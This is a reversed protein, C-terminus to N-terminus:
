SLIEVGSTGGESALRNSRREIRIWRERPRGRTTRSEGFTCYTTVGPCLSPDLTILRREYALVHDATPLFLLCLLSFPRRFDVVFATLPLTRTTGLLREMQTSRDFKNGTDLDKRASIPAFLRLGLAIRAHESTAPDERHCYLPSPPQSSRLLM